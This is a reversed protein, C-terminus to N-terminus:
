SKAALREAATEKSAADALQGCGADIDIGRRVRVTAPIGNKELTRVFVEADPLSTPQGYFGRTPNLPILNVHCKLGRLRAALARASTADDNQGAILAWEFSIRRGTREVYYRCADFLTDLDYKRNVPMLASRSADDSEHLSIALKIEGLDGDAIDDAFRRIEPVLGVTSITIHRAGIGLDKMIRRAAALVADYNRFPEGMGMFVVNSLREDKERLESAFRAAQEFIEAESLHRRFGMQGTACFTCGMACGVQSSICATRRRTDYPMLVSEILSDDTCRWLRKRTGDQSVQEAAVQMSGLTAREGLGARLAKPLNNMDDFTKAPSEGYLWAKLQKARYKPQGLEVMLEALETDDLAYLNIQGSHEAGLMRLQSRASRGLGGGGVGGSVGSTFLREGGLSLQRMSRSLEPPRLAPAALHLLARGAPAVLASSLLPLSTLPLMTSGLSASSLLPPPLNVPPPLAVRTPPPWRTRCPSM